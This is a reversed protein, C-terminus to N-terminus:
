RGLRVLQKRTVLWALGAAGPRVQAPFELKAAGAKALRVFSTADGTLALGVLESFTPEHGVLVLRRRADAEKATRALVDAATGGPRLEPWEELESASGLAKQLLEATARARTAPSTVLRDTDDLWQALGRAAAATDARGERTLPRREDDRWRAPDREEAPGHRFLVVEM